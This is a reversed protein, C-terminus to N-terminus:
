GITIDTRVSCTKLLCTPQCPYLQEEESSPLMELANVDIEM